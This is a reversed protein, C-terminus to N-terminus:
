GQRSAGERAGVPQPRGRTWLRPSWITGTLSRGAYELSQRCVRRRIFRHAVLAADARCLARTREATQSCRGFTKSMLKRNSSAEPEPGLSSGQGADGGMSPSTERAIRRHQPRCNRRLGGCRRPTLPYAAYRGYGVGVRITSCIGSFAEGSLDRGGVADSGKYSAGPMPRRPPPHASASHNSTM